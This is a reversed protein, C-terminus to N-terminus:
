TTEEKKLIKSTTDFLYRRLTPDDNLYGEVICLNAGDEVKDTKTHWKYILSVLNLKCGGIFVVPIAGDDRIIFGTYTESKM